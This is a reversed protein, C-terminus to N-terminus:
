SFTLRLSVSIKRGRTKRISPNLTHAVMEPEKDQSLAKNFM